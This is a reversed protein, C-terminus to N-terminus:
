KKLTQMPMEIGYDKSTVLIISEAAARTAECCYHNIGTPIDPKASKVVPMEKINLRLDADGMKFTRM